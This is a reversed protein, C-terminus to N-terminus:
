ELIVRATGDAYTPFICTHIGGGLFSESFVVYKAGDDVTWPM